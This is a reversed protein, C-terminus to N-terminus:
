SHPLLFYFRAVEWLRALRLVVNMCSNSRAVVHICVCVCQAYESRCTSMNASCSVFATFCCFCSKDTSICFYYTFTM